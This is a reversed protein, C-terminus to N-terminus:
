EKSKENAEQRDMEKIFKHYERDAKEWQRKLSWIFLVRQVESTTAKWALVCLDAVNTYFGPWVAYSITISLLLLYGTYTM